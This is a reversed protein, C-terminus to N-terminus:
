LNNIRYRCTECASEAASRDIVREPLASSQIYGCAIMQLDTCEGDEVYEELYPCYRYTSEIEERFVNWEATLHNEECFWHCASIVEREEMEAIKKMRYRTLKHKKLFRRSLEALLAEPKM